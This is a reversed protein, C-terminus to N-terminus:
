VSQNIHNPERQYSQTETMGATLDNLITDSCVLLTHVLICGSRILDLPVLEPHFLQNIGLIFM